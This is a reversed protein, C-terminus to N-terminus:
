DTDSFNIHFEETTDLFRFEQDNDSPFINLGELHSDSLTQNINSAFSIPREVPRREVLTFLEEGRQRNIRFYIINTDDEFSIFTAIIHNKPRGPGRM